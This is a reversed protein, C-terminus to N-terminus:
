GQFFLTFISKIRSFFTVDCTHILWTVCVHAVEEGTKPLPNRWAYISKIKLFFARRWVYSRTVDCVCSCGRDWCVAVCQFVSCCVAVAFLSSSQETPWDMRCASSGWCVAVCQFMLLGEIVTKQVAASKYMCKKEYMYMSKIQLRHVHIFLFTHICILRQATVFWGYVCKKEYMYMSKKRISLARLGIGRRQGCGSPDINRMHIPRKECTFMDSLDIWTFMGSLDIRRRAYRSKECLFFFVEEVTKHATAPLTSKAHLFLIILETFIVICVGGYFIVICVEGM